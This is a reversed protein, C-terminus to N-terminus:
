HSSPHLRLCAVCPRKLFLSGYARYPADVLFDLPTQYCCKLSFNDMRNELAQLDEELSKIKEHDTMLMQINKDHSQLADEVKHKVVYFDMVFLVIAAVIPILWELHYRM